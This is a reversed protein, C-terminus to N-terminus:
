YKNPQYSTSDLITHSKFLHITVLNRVKRKAVGLGVAKGLVLKAGLILAEGLEFGLVLKAGLILLAGLVFGLIM